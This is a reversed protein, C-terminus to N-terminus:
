LQIAAVRDGVMTAIYVTGPPTGEESHDGAVGPTSVAADAGFLRAGGTAMQTAADCRLVSDATVGLVDRKIHDQYAVLGGCLFDAAKEVSALVEAVRGATCSEATAITRGDLLQAVRQALDEDQVISHYSAEDDGFGLHGDRCLLLRDGHGGPQHV